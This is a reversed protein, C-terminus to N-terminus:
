RGYNAISVIVGFVRLNLWADVLCRAETQWCSRIWISDYSLYIMIKM